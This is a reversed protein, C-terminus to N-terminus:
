YKCNQLIQGQRVNETKMQEMCKRVDSLKGQMNAENEVRWAKQVSWM